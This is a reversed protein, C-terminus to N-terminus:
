QTKEGDDESKADSVVGSNPTAPAKVGELLTTIARRADAKFVAPSVPKAGRLDLGQLSRLADRQQTAQEAMAAALTEVWAEDSLYARIVDSACRAALCNEASCPDRGAPGNDLCIPTWDPIARCVARAAKELAESM